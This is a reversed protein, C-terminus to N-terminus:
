GVDPGIDRVVAQIGRHGHYRNLSPSGCRRYLGRDGDVWSATLGRRDPSSGGDPARGGCAGGSPADDAHGHEDPSGGCCGQPHAAAWQVAQERAAERVLKLEDNTGDDASVSSSISSDRLAELKATVGRAADMVTAAKVKARAAVLEVIALRAAMAATEIV